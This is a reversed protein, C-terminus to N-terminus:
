GGPPGAIMIDCGNHYSHFHDHHSHYCSHLVPLYQKVDDDTM